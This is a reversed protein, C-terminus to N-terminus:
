RAIRYAVLWLIDNEDAVFGLVRDRAIVMPRYAAFAAPVSTEGLLRGNASYIDYRRGGGSAVRREVWLRGADDLLLREYSAYEHPILGFDPPPAGYREAATQVRQVQSDRVVNPIPVRAGKLTITVDPDCSQRPTHVITAYGPYWGSWVSGDQSRAMSQQPLQFPVQMVTGGHANRFSYSGQAPVHTPPCDRPLVTDITAFDKSWVRRAPASVTASPKRVRVFEDLRGDPTYYADWMFSFGWPQTLPVTKLLDGNEALITFRNNNPDNVIVTGTPSVALGNAAQFEGPGAGKRGVTRVVRGNADLFHVQEDKYDVLVVGGNPLVSLGRVDVFSYPGEVEGGVRWEEILRWERPAQAFATSAVALFM